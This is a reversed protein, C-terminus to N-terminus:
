TYCAQQAASIDSDVVSHFRRLINGAREEDQQRFRASWLCDASCFCDLQPLEFREESINPSFTRSCNECIRLGFASGATAAASIKTSPATMPLRQVLIGVSRPSPPNRQLEAHLSSTLLTPQGIAAPESRPAAPIGSSVTCPSLANPKLASLSSATSGCTGGRYTQVSRCEGCEVSMRGAAPSTAGFTKSPTFTLFLPSLQSTLTVYENYPLLIVATKAQTSSHVTNM